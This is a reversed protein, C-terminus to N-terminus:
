LTVVRVYNWILEVIDMIEEINEVINKILREIEEDPSPKDLRKQWYM